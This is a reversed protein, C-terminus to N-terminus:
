QVIELTSGKDKQIVAKYRQHASQLYSLFQERDKNDKFINKRENGKSTVHYYAGPFEIQLPRVM